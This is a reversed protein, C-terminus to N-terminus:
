VLIGPQTFEATTVTFGIGGDILPENAIQGPPFVIKDSAIVPPVHLEAEDPIAVIPEAVPITVPIKGPM